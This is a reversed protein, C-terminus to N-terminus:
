WLGRVPRLPPPTATIVRVFRLTLILAAGAKLVKSYMSMLIRDEDASSIWRIATYLGGGDDFFLHVVLSNM